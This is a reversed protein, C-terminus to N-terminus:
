NNSSLWQWGPTIKFKFHVLPLYFFPSLSFNSTKLPWMEWREENGEWDEERKWKKRHKSEKNWCKLKSKQSLCHSVSSTKTCLTLPSLPKTYGWHDSLYSSALITNKYFLMSKIPLYVQHSSSQYHVIHNTPIVAHWINQKRLSSTDNILRTQM